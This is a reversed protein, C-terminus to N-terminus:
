LPLWNHNHDIINKGHTWSVNFHPKVHM